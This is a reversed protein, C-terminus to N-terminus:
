SSAWQKYLKNGNQLINYTQMRYLLVPHLFPCVQGFNTYRYLLYSVFLLFLDTLLHMSMLDLIKYVEEEEQVLINAERNHQAANRHEKLWTNSGFPGIFNFQIGVPDPNREFENCSSCCGWAGRLCSPPFSCSNHSDKSAPPPSVISPDFQKGNGATAIRGRTLAASIRFDQFYVPKARDECCESLVHLVLLSRLPNQNLRLEFHQTM